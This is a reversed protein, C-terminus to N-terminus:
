FRTRDPVPGSVIVAVDHPAVSVEGDTIHGGLLDLPNSPGAPRVPWPEAAANVLITVEDGGRALLLGLRGPESSTM